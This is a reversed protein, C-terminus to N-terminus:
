PNIKADEAMLVSFFFFALATFATLFINKKM